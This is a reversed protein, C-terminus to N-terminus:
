ESNVSYSALISVTRACDSLAVVADHLGGERRRADPDVLSLGVVAEGGTEAVRAIARRDGVVDQRDRAVVRDPEEVPVGARNATDTADVDVLARGLREGAEDYTKTKM